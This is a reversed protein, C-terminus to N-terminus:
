ILNPAQNCFTSGSCTLPTYIEARIKWTGGLKHWKAYYTGSLQVTGDSEQWQGTWTGTESAMSWDAYISIQVPTRVYVVEKKTNFEQIFSQRNAERGSLEFNRSSILHFDNTWYNAITISDHNAISLNSQSRIERIQIEDPSASPRTPSCSYSNFLSFFVVLMIFFSSIEQKM